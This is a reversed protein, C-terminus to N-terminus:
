LVMKKKFLVYYAHGKKVFNKLAGLLNELKVRGNVIDFNRIISFIISTLYTLAQASLVLDNRKDYVTYACLIGFISLNIFISCLKLKDSIKGRHEVQDDLDHGLNKSYKLIGSFYNESSTFAM